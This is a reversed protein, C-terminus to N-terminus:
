STSSFISLKLTFDETNILQFVCVDGAKLTNETALYAWGATLRCSFGGALGVTWTKGSVEIKVVRTSDKLFMKAFVPDIPQM